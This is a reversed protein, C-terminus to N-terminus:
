QPPLLTITLLEGANTRSRITPGTSMGEGGLRYDLPGVPINRLTRTARAPVQYTVGDITVYGTVLLRNDLRIVARPTEPAPVVPTFSSKSPASQGNAIRELMKEMRDLRDALLNYDQDRARKLDEIQKRLSDIEKRTDRGGDGGTDDAQLSTSTIALVFVLCLLRNM